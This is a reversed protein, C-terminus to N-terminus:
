IEIVNCILHPLSFSHERSAGSEASCVYDMKSMLVQRHASSSRTLLEARRHHCQRQWCSRAQSSSTRRQAESTDASPRHAKFYRLLLLTRSLTSAGVSVWAPMWFESLLRRLWDPHRQGKEQGEPPAKLGWCLRRGCAKRSELCM